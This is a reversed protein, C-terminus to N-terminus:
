LERGEYDSLRRRWEDTIPRSRTTKPDINVMVTTARCKVQGTAANVVRQELRLSSHSMSEVATLVELEENIYTPNYFDCNINAIVLTVEGWDFRGGEMFQAFYAAKALDMFQMYISNNLHGLMDIDNFRIQVPQRHHFEYEEKPIRSESM